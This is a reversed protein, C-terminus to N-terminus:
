HPLISEVAAIGQGCAAWLEPVVHCLDFILPQLFAAEAQTLESFGLDAVLTGVCKCWADLDSRSASAIMGVQFATGVDLDDRFFRRYSRILVFLEDALAHHRNAAAAAALGVLCPELAEVNGASDIHYRVRRLAEAALALIDDPLPFLLAANALPTMSFVTPSPRSLEARLRDLDDGPLQSNPSVNGELPGPLLCSLLDLQKRIGDDADSILIDRLGFEVTEKEHGAAAMLVRGVIENRLQRPMAFEGLWRPESRLDVYCQVSYESLRVSSMWEVFASLDGNASLVSRTILAAQALAALRRWFPPASALTRTKSLEGYVGVFAASLVAFPDYRETGIQGTLSKALERINTATTSADHSGTLAMEITTARAIPDATRAWSALRDFDVSPIPTKAIVETVLSHSALLLAHRLGDAVRWSLLQLIHGTAVADVYEKINAQDSIRGVLREYYLSSRPVLVELSVHANALQTTVIDTVAVVTNLADTLLDGLEDESLPHRALVKSWQQSAANPLNIRAAERAFFARRTTKDPSILLFYNAYLVRRGARLSLETAGDKTNATVDWENGAEDSLRQNSGPTACAARVTSLFVSRKVVVDANGISLTADISIGFDRRLGKDALLEDRIMPPVWDMHAMLFAARLRKSPTM